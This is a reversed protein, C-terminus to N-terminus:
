LDYGFEIFFTRGPRPIDTPVTNIPAPDDYKKDLLNFLSAKVEFDKFFDKATLTLNLLAYGPSDDRTDDQERVRDDSIFAHLNANLYKCPKVNIGVNGKHKPVDPLPDGKSEADLYTYNAFVSVGNLLDPFDAKCEFEIGQVNANGVNDFTFTGTSNTRLELIDRMVNYFYNVNIGWNKNFRYGLSLEYTRIKEPDLNPSGAAFQNNSFLEAFSPARFAQGYLLKLTANDIFNWVIGLRPNTTGEFRKYHDHRVGFTLGLNDTIDWKNQLYLAWIQRTVEPIINSDTVDQMSGFSVGTLPSSNSTISINTQKIWDYKFGLTFTNTDFLDYDMQIEAEINRNTHEAHVRQGDPFLEFDGDGDVDPFFFGEPTLQANTEWDNQDYYIRPKITLREGIEWRYKLDAMVYNLETETENTLLPGVFPEVDKNMYKANLQLGKYSAKLYMDLKNRGDDSDNPALSFLKPLPDDKITDSQGNSNYFDVFGTINVGKFEKGYMISYEQTDYSGFGSAVEIGNIDSADKTIVNIVALFANTGYLASGPGRIIEIRKVNRLPLDDFFNSFNEAFHWTLYHGDLLVRIKENDRGITSVGRTSINNAGVIADKIIDFGPVTRLVDVLTRVGMNEIEKATIVTVISPAKSIEEETKSAVTILQQDMLFFIDNYGDSVQGIDPYIEEPTGVLEKGSQDNYFAEGKDDTEGASITSLIYLRKQGPVGHDILYEFSHMFLSIIIFFLITKELKVKQRKFFGSTKDKDCYNRRKFLTKYVSCVEGTAISENANFIRLKYAM